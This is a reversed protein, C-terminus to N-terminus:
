MKGSVQRYLRQRRVCVLAWGGLCTPWKESSTFCMSHKQLIKYLYIQNQTYFHSFHHLHSVSQVQKKLITPLLGKHLLLITVYVLQWLFGSSHMIKTYIAILIHCFDQRKKVASSTSEYHQKKEKTFCTKYIFPVQRKVRKKEHWVDTM